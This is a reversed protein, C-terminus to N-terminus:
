SDSGARESDPVPNHSFDRQCSLVGCLSGESREPFSRVLDDADESRSGIAESVGVALGETMRPVDFM